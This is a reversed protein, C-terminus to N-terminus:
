EVLHPLQESVSNEMIREFGNRRQFRMWPAITSHCFFQRHYIKSFCKYGLYGVMYISPITFPLVTMVSGETKRTPADVYTIFAAMSGAFCLGVSLILIIDVTNYVKSKYPQIVAVLMGTIICVFTNVGLFLVSEAWMICGIYILLAVHYVVGFYRCNRTGNTGDKYCSLINDMFPYLTVQVPTPLRNLIVQARPFTYLMMLILPVFNCLVFICIGVVAYPIHKGKFLEMTGDFYSRPLISNSENNRVETYTLFDVTTSLFKVYSLSFFTGFADILSTRINLRHRFRICCHHFLQGLFIIPRINRSYMDVMIYLVIILILPYAAIIYDLSMVQLTTLSPHLCFPKYVLRFFDLNWVGYVSGLIPIYPYLYHDRHAEKTAVVTRMLFSYSLLQCVLIWGRLPASNVSITFVVIVGLFVTLPGYAILIYLPVTKWLSQHGCKVCKLSFSYVPAGYGDRCQGCLTGKRNFLSCMEGKLIINNSVTIRHYQMTREMNFCGYLCRGVSLSPESSKHSETLCYCRLIRLTILSCDVQSEVIVINMGMLENWSSPFCSKTTANENAGDFSANINHSDNRGLTANFELVVLIALVRLGKM